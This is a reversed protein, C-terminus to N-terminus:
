KVAPQLWALLDLVEERTLLNLLGPPMLSIKSQSRKTIDAKPIKTIKDPHLPNEALQLNPARYDLNPIIQGALQRGDKLELLSTQYNEAITKSPDLIESLLDRRGFRSAV